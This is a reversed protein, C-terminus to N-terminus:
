ELDRFIDKVYDGLDNERHYKLADKLNTGILELKKEIRDINFEWKKPKVISLFKSIQSKSAIFNKYSISTKGTNKNRWERQTIKPSSKINLTECMEKFDTVLPLSTNTFDILLSSRQKVVSISGDTDFLGRLCAITFNRDSKIWNPVRVQNKTKNGPKLGCSTLHEFLSKNDIYLFMGKEKGTANRNDKEWRENLKINYMSQIKNRIYLMYKKEDVGNFSIQQRYSQKNLHGDGLMIGILEALDKDKKHTLNKGEIKERPIKRGVLEELKQFSKENLTKTYSYTLNKINTGIKKSIQQLTLNRKIKLDNLVTEITDADISIRKVGDSNFISKVSRLNENPEDRPIFDDKTQINLNKKINREYYEDFEGEDFENM